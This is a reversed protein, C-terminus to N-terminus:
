LERSYRQVEQSGDVAGRLAEVQRPFGAVEVSGIIIGAEYVTAYEEGETPSDRAGGVSSRYASFAGPFRGVNPSM